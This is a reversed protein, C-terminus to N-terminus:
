AFTKSNWAFRSRDIDLLEVFVRDPPVGLTDRILESIAEALAPCRDETLGISKLSAFAAPESSGGFVMAQEVQLNVMIYQRSKGLQSELMETARALFDRQGTPNVNQNTQVSFFPM